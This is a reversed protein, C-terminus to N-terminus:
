MDNYKLYNSLKVNNNKAENSKSILLYNIENISNNLKMISYENKKNIEGNNILNKNPKRNKQLLLYKDLVKRMAGKVAKGGEIKNSVSKFVNEVVKTKNRKEIQIKLEKEYNRDRSTIEDNLLLFSNYINDKSIKGNNLLETDYDKFFM